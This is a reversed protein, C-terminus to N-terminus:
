RRGIAALAPTVIEVVARTERAEKELVATKAGLERMLMLAASFASGLEAQAAAHDELAVLRQEVAGGGALLAVPRAELAEVRALLDAILKRTAADLEVRNTHREVEKIRRRWHTLSEVDAM